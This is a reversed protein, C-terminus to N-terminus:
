QNSAHPLRTINIRNSLPIGLTRTTHLADELRKKVAEAVSLEEVEHAAQEKWAWVERQAQSEHQKM